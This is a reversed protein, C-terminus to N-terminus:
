SVYPRIRTRVARIGCFSRSRALDVAGIAVDLAKIDAVGEAGHSM